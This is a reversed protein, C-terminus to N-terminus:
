PQWATKSRCMSHIQFSFSEKCTLKRDPVDDMWWADDRWPSQNSKDGFTVDLMTPASTKSLTANVCWGNPCTTNFTSSKFCNVAMIYTYLRRCNKLCSLLWLCVTVNCRDAMRNELKHRLCLWILSGCQPIHEVNALARSHRNFIWM